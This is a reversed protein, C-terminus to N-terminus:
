ISQLLTTVVLTMAVGFMTDSLSALRDSSLATSVAPQSAAADM